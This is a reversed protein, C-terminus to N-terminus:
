RSSSPITSGRSSSRSRRRDQASASGSGGTRCRAALLFVQAHDVEAFFKRRWGYSVSRAGTLRSGHAAFPDQAHVLALVHVGRWLSRAMCARGLDVELGLEPHPATRRHAAPLRRTRQRRASCRPRRGSRRRCWGGTGSPFRRSAPRSLAATSAVPSMEHRASAAMKGVRSPRQRRQQAVDAAVIEAREGARAGCEQRRADRRRACGTSPTNRRPGSGPHWRPISARRSRARRCPASSRCTRSACPPRNSPM